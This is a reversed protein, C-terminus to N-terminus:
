WGSTCLIHLIVETTQEEVKKSRGEKTWIAKKRFAASSAGETENSRFVCLSVFPTEDCIQMLLEQGEM